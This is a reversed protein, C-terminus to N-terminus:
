PVPVPPVPLLSLEIVPEVIPFLLLVRLPVLVLGAVPEPVVPVLVVGLEGGGALLVSLGRGGGV